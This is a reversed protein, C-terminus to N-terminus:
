KAYNQIEAVTDAYDSFDDYVSKTAEKLEDKDMEVLTMGKDNILTEKAAENDKECAEREVETAYASAEDVWGKQEDTLKDYTSPSILFAAVQFVHETEILYNNVEFINSQLINVYPNEQGDVTKQQLATYLESFSIATPSAGLADFIAMQIDSSQTRIKLGKFDDVSKIEKSATTNRFGMSWWGEVKFSSDELSEAFKKGVDGDLADYAMQYDDILYPMDFVNLEPAFNALTTTVIPAVDVTGMQIGEAVESLSGLTGNRYLEVDMAGGSLEQLKEQFAVAGQDFISGEADAHALKLTVDAAAHVTTTAGFMGCVMASAVMLTVIKKAKM